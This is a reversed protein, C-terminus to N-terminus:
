DSILMGGDRDKTGTEDRAADGKGRGVHDTQRVSSASDIMAGSLKQGCEGGEERERGCGWRGM